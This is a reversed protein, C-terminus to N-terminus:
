RCSVKTQMYCIALLWADTNGMPKRGIKKISTKNKFKRYSKNNLPTLENVLDSITEKSQSGHNKM